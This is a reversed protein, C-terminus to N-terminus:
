AQLIARNLKGSVFGETDIQVKDFGLEILKTTLEPELAIVESVRDTPVEIRASQGYHRVRAIPFGLRTLEAEAAEIRRLKDTTVREGYPIRSALCPSAPKNWCNLEFHAAIARVTAKDIECEALPARVAHETAAQIGPRYDGADDLNQGNCVWWQPHQQRVTELESYLADKCFYCRNAPNTFYNPDDIEGSTVVEMTIDHELAFRKAGDLESLKLSPSASIVALSREKGLFHRALYAVLSSDVGGSFATVVGECADFWRQLRALAPQLENTQAM